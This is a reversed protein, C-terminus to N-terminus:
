GGQLPRDKSGPNSKAWPCGRENGDIDTSEPQPEGPAREGPPALGLQRQLFAFMAWMDRFRATEHSGPEELSACWGPQGKSDRTSWMRLMYSLYRRELDAPANM